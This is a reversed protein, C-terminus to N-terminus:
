QKQTLLKMCLVMVSELTVTLGWIATKWRSQHLLRGQKDKLNSIYDRMSSSQSIFAPLSEKTVPAKSGKALLIKSNLADFTADINRVFTSTADSKHFQPICAEEQLFDIASAASSNLTQAAHRVNMKHKTWDVHRKKLKNAFNFGIEEQLKNLATIYKLKIEQTEGNITNSIVEFDALLDLNAEVHPM